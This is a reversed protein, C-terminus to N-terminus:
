LFSPRKRGLKKGDNQLALLIQVGGTTVRDPHFNVTLESAGPFPIGEVKSKVYEIASKQSETLSM